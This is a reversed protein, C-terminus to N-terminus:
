YGAESARRKEWSRRSLPGEVCGLLMTGFLHYWSGFVDDKKSDCVNTISRLSSTQKLNGRNPVLWYESLVNEISLIAKYLDGKQLELSKRLVDEPELSSFRQRKIWARLKKDMPTMMYRATAGM